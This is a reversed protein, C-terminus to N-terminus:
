TCTTAAPTCSASKAGTNTAHRRGQQRLALRDARDVPLADMDTRVLVVPGPGNEVVGVVGHKGVGTTVKAGAKELEDAIRAATEVEQYSLEPHTHLHKYLTSCSM